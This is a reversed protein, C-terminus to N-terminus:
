LVQHVSDIEIAPVSGADQAEVLYSVGVRKIKGNGFVDVFIYFNFDFEYFLM